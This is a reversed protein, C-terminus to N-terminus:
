EAHSDAYRTAEYLQGIPIGGDTIHDYRGGWQNDIQANGTGDDYGFVTVVHGAFKASKKADPKITRNHGNVFLTLPFQNHQNASEFANRLENESTFLTELGNHGAGSDSNRLYRHPDAHGVIKNEIVAMDALRLGTFPYGQGDNRDLIAEYDFKGKANVPVELFRLKSDAFHLDIATEQFLKSAYSRDGDRPPNQKSESDKQLDLRSLKVKTGDLSTYTSTTGVDAILKAAESPHEAFLRVELAAATCTNHKGQDIRTPHAAHQLIQDALTAHDRATRENESTQLLRTAQQFTDAIEFTPLHWSAARKELSFLNRSIRTKQVNPLHDAADMLAERAIAVTREDDGAAADDNPSGSALYEDFARHM